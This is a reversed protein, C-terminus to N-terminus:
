MGQLYERLVEPIHGVVDSALLGYSMDSFAMDGASGSIFASLRAADFPTLGRALLAGVIGALVDGTGGVTMAPNGTRNLKTREGDSIIDERGKLLVTMGARRALERADEESPSDADFPHLRSFEGRHPTIVGKLHIQDPEMQSLIFLGDADIVFPVPPASQLLVRVAEITDTNRGLGPGLVVSDANKMLKLLGATHKTSIHGGSLPHTIFEPMITAAVRTVDETSALHVLDAGTRYAAIASLIPAGQYPGGGIVLVRGSDGKHATSSPIRYYIFEGPGVYRDADEPIGIDAIEIKGCTEPSMGYKEDHFTVTLEPRVARDTGLGSPIDVSVIHADSSNIAEIWSLYPERVGGSIGIGLMADIIVDFGQLEEISAVFGSVLNKARYFNRRAVATRLNEPGKVFALYVSNKESLHRAAVLGDGANNGTGCVVCIRMSSGFHEEVARAVSRGANEMLTEPPVGLHEANIDLVKVEEFPIM